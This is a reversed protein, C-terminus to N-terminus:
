WVFHIVFCFVSLATPILYYLSRRMSLIGCGTAMYLLGMELLDIRVLTVSGPLSEIWGVGHNMLWAVGRLGYGLCTGVLPLWGVTFFALALGMMLAALPIVLLNTLLFYNSMQGFTYLCLPLTGLQAALSVTLLNRPRMLMLAAVALFSLQFGLAYVEGPQALLILFAAVALTNINLAARRLVYGVSVVSLMVVARCVSPSFGTLAAYGVLLLLVSLHLMATWLRQEYLPRFRGGLTLLWMLAAYLMGTHLGSVALVHMAGAAQFSRRADRSLDERYGLTLAQLTAREEDPIGVDAYRQCLTRRLRAFAHDSHSARQQPIGSLLILVVQIAVILLM